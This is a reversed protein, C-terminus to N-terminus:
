SFSPATRRAPSSPWGNPIASKAATVERYELIEISKVAGGADLALAIPIFDHKGVVEDAIFWGGDSVRWVKLQRNRVNAASAKEIAAVQESTLTRFDPTFSAGPFM